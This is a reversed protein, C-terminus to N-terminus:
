DRIFGLFNESLIGDNYFLDEIELLARRHNNLGSKQWERLRDNSYNRFPEQLKGFSKIQGSIVYRKEDNLHMRWHPREPIFWTTVLSLRMHKNGKFDVIPNSFNIESFYSDINFGNPFVGSYKYGNEERLTKVDIIKRGNVREIEEGLVGAIAM